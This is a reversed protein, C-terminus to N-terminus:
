YSRLDIIHKVWKELGQKGLRQENFVLIKIVGTSHEHLSNPLKIM